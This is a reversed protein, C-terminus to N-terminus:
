SVVRVVSAPYDAYISGALEITGMGGKRAYSAAKRECFEWWSAPDVSTGGASMQLLDSRKGGKLRWGAEAAKYLAREGYTPVWPAEDEVKWTVTSDAFTADIVLSWVPATTGSQGAVTAIYVYGNRPFPVVRDGISYPENAEWRDFRDVLNGDVDTVAAVVLLDRLERNTLVPVVDAQVADSLWRLAQKESRGAVLVTV